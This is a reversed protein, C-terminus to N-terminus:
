GGLRYPLYFGILFFLIFLAIGLAIIVWMSMPHRGSVGMTTGPQPHGDGVTAVRSARPGTQFDSQDEPVPRSPLRLRPAIAATPVSALWPGTQTSQPVTTASQSVPHGALLPGWSRAGSRTRGTAWPADQAIAARAVRLAPPTQEPPAPRSKAVTQRMEDLEECLAEADTIAEHESQLVCRRVLQRLSDPVDARFARQMATLGTEDQASRKGESLLMWLLLGISIVDGVPSGDEAPLLAEPAVDWESAREAFYADDPPLCFNNIRVIAQRDVLVASPTLDGHTVDHAHAYALARAIQNGLDVARESPVGDRLYTTLPRATVFEQILFFWEDHQLADYTAVIASHSLASTARLAAWYTDAVEPSIAKVAISRRLVMDHGAYVRSLAGSAIPEDLHYRNLLRLGAHSIPSSVSDRLRM